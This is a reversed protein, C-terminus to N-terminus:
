LEKQWEPIFRDAVKAIWRWNMAIHACIFVWMVDTWNNHTTRWVRDDITEVGMRPLAVRSIVLGSVVVVTTSVLLMANLLLNVFDRRRAPVFARKLATVIWRWSLLLHVLVPLILAVGFWEHLSLGTLRPSMLLLCLVLLLTDVSLVFTKSPAGATTTM